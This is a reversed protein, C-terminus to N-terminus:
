VKVIKGTRMALERAAQMAALRPTVQGGFPTAKRSIQLDLELQTVRTRLAENEQAIRANIQQLALKTTAPM